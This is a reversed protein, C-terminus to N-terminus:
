ILAVSFKLCSTGGLPTLHKTKANTTSKNHIQQQTTTPAGRVTHSSKTTNKQVFQFLFLVEAVVNGWRHSINQQQMQQQTTTAASSAEGL